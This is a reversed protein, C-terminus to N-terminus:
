ATVDKLSALKNNSASEEKWLLVMVSPFLSNIQMELLALLEVNVRTLWQSPSEWLKSAQLRTKYIHQLIWISIWTTIIRFKLHITNLDNEDFLPLCLGVLGWFVVFCALPWYIKSSAWGFSAWINLMNQQFHIQNTWYIWYIKSSVLEFSELYKVYKKVNLM